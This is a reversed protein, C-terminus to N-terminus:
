HHRPMRSARGSQIGHSESNPPEAQVPEGNVRLVGYVIGDPQTIDARGGASILLLLGMARPINTKMMNGKM